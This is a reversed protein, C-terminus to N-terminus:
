WIRVVIVREQISVMCLALPWLVYIFKLFPYFTYLGRTIITHTGYILLCAFILASEWIKRILYIDYIQM